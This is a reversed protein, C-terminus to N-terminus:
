NKLMLNLIDDILSENSRSDSLIDDTVNLIPYDMATLFAINCALHWLHPLGSESDTGQPDSIYHLMHRMAADRYRQPEVTRWNESDGYKQNGYERVQAVAKILEVPVLTPRIKGGDQKAEQNMHSM